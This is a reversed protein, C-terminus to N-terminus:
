EEGKDKEVRGLGVNEGVGDGWVFVDGFDLVARREWQKKLM